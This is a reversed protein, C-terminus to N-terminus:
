AAAPPPAIELSRAALEEGAGDVLRLDLRGVSEAALREAIEAPLSWSAPPPQPLRESAAPFGAPNPSVEIWLPGPAAAFPTLDLPEGAGLRALPPEPSRASAALRELPAAFWAGYRRRRFRAASEEFWRAAQPERATSAGVAHLARAEPCYRAPLGRALARQLWDTEEFYLRYGEDFPGNAEWASRRFALLGGSLEHSPLPAVAQWHRRAHRRWRRRARGAWSGGRGALAAHLEDIRTRRETPPLLFRRGRDWYFRPGAIEAGAGLSAALAGLCGPLVEVDPNMVALLDGGAEGVGLNVGGAFGLNRGPDITRAPLAGLLARGAEDNGNDVVLVEGDLGSAALDARVAAVARAALAPTRYHVLIVSLPM